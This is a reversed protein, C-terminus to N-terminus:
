QKWSFNIGELSYKRWILNEFNIINGSLKNINAIIKRIKEKLDNELARGAALINILELNKM